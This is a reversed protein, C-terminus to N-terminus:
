TRNTPITLSKSTATTRWSSSSFTTWISFAKPVDENDRDSQAWATGALAAALLGLIAAKKIM